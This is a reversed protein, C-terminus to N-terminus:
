NKKPIDDEILLHTLMRHHVFNACTYELNQNYLYLSTQDYAAFYSITREMRGNKTQRQQLWKDQWKRAIM